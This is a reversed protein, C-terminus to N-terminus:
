DKTQSFPIRGSLPSDSSVDAKSSRQPQWNVKDDRILETSFDFHQTESGWRLLVVTEKSVLGKIQEETM